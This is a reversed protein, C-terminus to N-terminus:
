HSPISFSCSSLCLELFTPTCYIYMKLILIHHHLIASEAKGVVEGKLQEWVSSSLLFPQMHLSCGVLLRQFRVCLHRCYPVWMSVAPQPPPKKYRQLIGLCPFLCMCGCLCWLCLSVPHAYSFSSPPLVGQSCNSRFRPGYFGCCLVLCCHACMLKVPIHTKKCLRSPIEKM